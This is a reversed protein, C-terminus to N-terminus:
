NCKAPSAIETAPLASLKQKALQENLSPLEDKVLENWSATATLLDHCYDNYASEMAPTPGSDASDITTALSGLEQNLLTFAPKQRGAAAAGGGGRGESGQIRSVKADFEKLAAVSAADQNQLKKEDGALTERLALANRYYGDTLTVLGTVNKELAFQQALADKSTSVRPDLAVELPQTYTKGNVVLRVEYIGPVVLAGQPEAPTAGYMASIPYNHRISSPPTYRLDWLFRNMGAAKTLPEPHGLWYDPVNPPPEV